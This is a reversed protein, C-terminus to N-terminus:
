EVLENDCSGRVKIKKGGVGGPTTVNVYSGNPICEDPDYIAKIVSGKISPARSTARDTPIIEISTSDSFFRKGNVILSTSSSRNQARASNVNPPKGQTSMTVEISGVDAM